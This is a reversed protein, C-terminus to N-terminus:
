TVIVSLLSACDVDVVYSLQFGGDAVREVIAPMDILSDADDWLTLCVDDPKVYEALAGSSVHPCVLVVNRTAGAAGKVFSKMGRGSVTSM